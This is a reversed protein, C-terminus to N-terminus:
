AALVAEERQRLANFVRPPVRLRADSEYLARLERFREDPRRTLEALEDFFALESPDLAANPAPHLGWTDWPLLEAKNLAAADRLLNGAVFWLGRMRTFEIGFRAADLDGSRCASWADSATLFWDRPVDTMDRAIGLQRQWVADIQADLLAWRREAANWYECVWHDEFYGPNFYAGFGCRARAPVGKDRLMALAMLTFHRCIGVLRKQPPRAVSLPAEDLALLADLMRELPRIHSESRRADPIATGYFASAVHEYLVLGQVVSAISAPDAPLPSLLAAHHGPSSLPSQRAFDGLMDHDPATGTNPQHQSM